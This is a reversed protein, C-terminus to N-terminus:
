PRNYGVIIQQITVHAFFKNIAKVATKVITKIAPPALEDMLQKWNENAFQHTADSLQKNGNFLNDLHFVTREITYKYNPTVLKLHEGKENKYHTLKSDITVECGEASVVADGNGQIPLILIRGDANYKATLSLNAKFSLSFVEDVKGLVVKLNTLESNSIGHMSADTFSLKLGNGDINIEGLNIPDLSPVDFEPIGRTFPGLSEMMQKRVCNELNKDNFDCTKIYPPLYDEEGNSIYVLAALVMFSCVSLM